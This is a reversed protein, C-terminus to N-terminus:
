GQRKRLEISLQRARDHLENERRKAADIRDAEALLRRTVIDVREEMPKFWLSPGAILGTLSLSPGVKRWGESHMRLLYAGGDEIMVTYDGWQYDAM